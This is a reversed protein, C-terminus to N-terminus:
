YDGVSTVVDDEDLIIKTGCAVYARLKQELGHARGIWGKSVDRDATRASSIVGDRGVLISHKCKYKDRREHHAEEDLYLWASGYENHEVIVTIVPGYGEGEHHERMLDAIESLKVEKPALGLLEDMDAALRGAVLTAVRAEIQTKLMQTVIAGYSPLDLHDVRLADEVAKEILKGTDSYSRLARDVSEVILKEVRSNVEKEIFDPTMKATVAASILNTLTDIM